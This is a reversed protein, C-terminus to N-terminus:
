SREVEIWASAAGQTSAGATVYLTITDAGYYKTNPTATFVDTTTLPCSALLGAQGGTHGISASAAPDDFAQSIAIGTQKIRDGSTVTRVVISTASEYTFDVETIDFESTLTVGGTVGGGDLGRGATVSTIDGAGGGSTSGVWFTFKGGTM